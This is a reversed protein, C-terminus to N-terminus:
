DAHTASKLYYLYFCIQMSLLVHFYEALSLMFASDQWHERKFTRYWSYIISYNYKTLTRHMLWERDERWRTRVDSSSHPLDNVDQENVNYHLFWKPDSPVTTALFTSEFDVKQKCKLHSALAIHVTRSIRVHYQFKSTVVSHAETTARM